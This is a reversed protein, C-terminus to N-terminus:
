HGHAPGVGAVISRKIDSDSWTGIGTEKDPTINAAYVEFPPVVVYLGSGSLKNTETPKRQSHGHQQSAQEIGAM